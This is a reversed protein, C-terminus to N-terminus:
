VNTFCLSTPSITCEVNQVIYLRVNSFSPLPARPAARHYFTCKWWCVVEGLMATIDAAISKKTLLYLKKPDFKPWFGGIAIQPNIFDCISNIELFHQGSFEDFNSIHFFSM